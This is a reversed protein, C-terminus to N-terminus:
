HRICNVLPLNLVVHMYCVVCDCVCMAKAHSKTYNYAYAHQKCICAHFVLSCASTYNNIKNKLYITCARRKDSITHVNHM